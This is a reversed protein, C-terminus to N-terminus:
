LMSAVNELGLSRARRRVVDKQDPRMSRLLPSAAKYLRMQMFYSLTFDPKRGAQVQAMQGRGIEILVPEVPLWYQMQDPTLRLAAKMRAIEAPTLVGDYRSDFAPKEVLPRPRPASPPKAELEQKGPIPGLAATTIPDAARRRRQVTDQRQDDEDDVPAEVTPEAVPRRRRQVPEKRLIDESDGLQLRSAASPATLKPIVADPAISAYAMRASPVAAPDARRRPQAGLPRQEDFGAGALAVPGANFLGPSPPLTHTDESVFSVLAIALAVAVVFGALAVPVHRWEM